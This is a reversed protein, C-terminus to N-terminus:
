GLYTQSNGRFLKRVKPFPAALHQAARSAAKLSHKPYSARSNENWVALWPTAGTAMTGGTLVCIDGAVDSGCSISVPFKNEKKEENDKEKIM